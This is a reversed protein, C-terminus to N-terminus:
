EWPLDDSEQVSAAPATGQSVQGFEVPRFDGLFIKAKLDKNYLTLTHTNGYDDPGDKKELIDVWICKEGKSNTTILNKDIKSLNIRGHLKTAM